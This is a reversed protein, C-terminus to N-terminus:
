SQSDIARLVFIADTLVYFSHKLDGECLYPLRTFREVEFGSQRFIRVFHEVQEEFNSGRVHLYETPEHTRSGFEVYPKFPIVVAVLVRGVGPTLSARMDALLSLPKDCRDLLNLCAILDYQLGSKHWEDVELVKFGHGTLRRVMMGSMETTYTNRFYSAMKLTVMGDGAGLDLLNEGKYYASFGLLKEFQNKSFIFMSGRNLFGNISTQTMFINLIPRAVSYLIQTFLQDSKDQCNQLFDDTGEDQEFQLFLNQVDEPLRSVVVRYWYVHKDNKNREDEKLKQYMARALPNRIQQGSWLDGHGSVSPETRAQECIAPTEAEAGTSSYVVSRSPEAQGTNGEAMNSKPTKASPTSTRQTESASCQPPGTTIVSAIVACSTFLQFCWHGSYVPYFIM